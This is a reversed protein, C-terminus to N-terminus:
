KLLDTYIPKFDRFGTIQDDILDAHCSSYPLCMKGDYWFTYTIIGGMGRYETIREPAGFQRLLDAKAMGVSVKPNTKIQTYVFPKFVEQIVVDQFAEPEPTASPDPTARPASTALSAAPASTAPTPARPASEDVAQTPVKKPGIKFVILRYCKISKGDAECTTREPTINVEHGSCSESMGCVRFFEKRANEFAITRAENEEKAKGIGCANIVDGKRESAVEKCYWNHESAPSSAPNLFLFLLLISDM